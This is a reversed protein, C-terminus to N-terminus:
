RVARGANVRGKGYIADNGRRGLDDASRAIAEFLADPSIKGKKKGVILAAVGAVAPSSMSTGAAWCVNAVGTGRCSSVVMDFVWCPQTVTTTTPPPGPNIALTCNPPVQDPYDFDGGPGSLDVISKGYNSFSSLIDYDTAGKAYGFPALASVAVVKDSQAPVTVLERHADHDIGIGADDGNGTSAIVLTGQKHAFRTAKDLAKLLEKDEPAPEFTAGLSMNIIDAGAGGKAIPTAAYIIGDIVSQFSGTGSHLVKVGILTAEPAVGITGLNDANDAAAVIGAVHTGHWFTGTDNNYPQGAVFSRSRAVDLNPAIDVHQNWIGGDLIAVRAGKGMEGRDWAKKAEIAVMNWQIPYWRETTGVDAHPGHRDEAVIYRQNPDVWQIVRDAGVGEIGPEVRLKAAFDTADSEAIAVGAEAEVKTLKGGAKAVRAALDTPAGSEALSIVFTKPKGAVALSPTEFPAVPDSDKQCATLGLLVASGTCLMFRGVRM